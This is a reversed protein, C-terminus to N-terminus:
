GALGAAADALIPLFHGWGTDHADAATAPLDYHRLTLITADGDADLTVEVRSSGPPVLGDPGGDEWGFTFAVRHPRDLESYEGRMVPGGDMRVVFAGGVQAVTGTSDGWWEALRAPDTWFTWVLDPRAEIRLTRTVSPTAVDTM